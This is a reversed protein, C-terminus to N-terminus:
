IAVEVVKQVLTGPTSPTANTAKLVTYADFMKGSAVLRFQYGCKAFITEFCSVGVGGEFYPLIDYGSGYGLIDRWTVCDSSTHKFSLGAALANEAASYLAKLIAPSQNFAAALASSAKDYGCGGARGFYTEAENTVAAVSPCNGWYRSRKWEMNATIFELTPAAAVTELKEFRAVFSKNIDRIARATACAIARERDIRGTKYAEWKAPTSWRKIGEDPNNRHEASWTPYYGNQIYFRATEEKRAKEAELAKRLNEFM